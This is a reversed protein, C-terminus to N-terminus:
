RTRKLFADVRNRHEESEFAELSSDRIDSWVQAPVRAATLARVRSVAEPAADAIRAAYAKAAAVAEEATDTVTQVLGLTRATDVDLDAGTYALLRTWSPGLLDRGWVLGVSPMLGVAAEKWAFRTGTAAVCADCGLLLEFGAGYARGHVAAIVPISRDAVAEFLRYARDYHEARQEPTDLTAFDAVDAGACFAKGRGALVVARAPRAAEFAERLADFMPISIANMRDPRNLWITRVGDDDVVEIEYTVTRRDTAILDTIQRAVSARSACSEAAANGLQGQPGIGPPRRHDRALADLPM